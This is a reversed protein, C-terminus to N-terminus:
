FLGAAHAGVAAVIAAASVILPVPVGMAGGGGNLANTAALMAVERKRRMVAFADMMDSSNPRQEYEGILEYGLEDRDASWVEWKGGNYHLAGQVPYVTGSTYLLRFVFFPHFSDLTAIRGARGAVGMVGSHGMVDDLRANVLVVKGQTREALKQVDVITPIDVANTPSVVIVVEDQEVGTEGHLLALRFMGEPWGSETVKWDAEFQRMLGSVSLPTAGTISPAQVMIVTRMRRTCASERALSWALSLVFRRCYVDSSPDLQPVRLEVSGRNSDSDLFRWFASAAAQMYTERDEPTMPSASVHPTMCPTGTIPVTAIVPNEADSAACRVRRRVGVHTRKSPKCISRTRELFTPAVSPSAFCFSSQTHNM